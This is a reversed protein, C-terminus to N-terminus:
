SYFKVSFAMDELTCQFAMSPAIVVFSAVGVVIRAIGALSGFTEILTSKVTIARFGVVLSPFVQFWSSRTSLVPPCVGVIGTAACFTVAGIPVKPEAEHASAVEKSPDLIKM